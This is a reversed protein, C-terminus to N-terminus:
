AGLEPVADGTKTEWWDAFLRRHCFEGALVDEFCLLVLGPADTERGIEELAARIQEVGRRDLLRVYSRSFEEPQLGFIERTPALLRCTGALEYRLRFRPHGLTIRVPALGSEVILDASQYRSTALQM